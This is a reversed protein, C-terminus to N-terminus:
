LEFRMCGFLKGVDRIRWQRIAEIQRGDNKGGDNQWIRQGIFVFFGNRVQSTDPLPNKNDFYYNNGIARLDRAM